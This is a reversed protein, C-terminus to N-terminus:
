VKKLDKAKKLIGGPFMKSVTSQDSGLISGVEEQSFGRSVLDIILFRKIASVDAALQELKKEDM